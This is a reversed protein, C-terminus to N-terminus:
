LIEGVSQDVGVLHDVRVPRNIESIGNNEMSAPVEPRDDGESDSDENIPPMEEQDEEKFLRGGAINEFFRVSTHWEVKQRQPNYIRYQHSSNYGVFIGQFSVRDLKAKTESPIHVTVMCGFTRLHSVSPKREDWLETPSHANTPAPLINRIYNATMAAEGWFSQPLEAWIIMARVTEIITRNFREAVVNQEPTNPTTFEMRAGTAKITNQFKQYEKANDCRYLIVKQGTQLEIERQWDM